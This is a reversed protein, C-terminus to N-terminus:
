PDFQAVGNSSNSETTFYRVFRFVRQTSALPNVHMTLTQDRRKNASHLRHNPTKRADSWRQCFLM